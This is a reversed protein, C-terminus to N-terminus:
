GGGDGIRGGADVPDVRRRVTDDRDIETGTVHATGVADQEISTREVDHLIEQIADGHHFERGVM